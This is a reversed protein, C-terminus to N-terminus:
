RLQDVCTKVTKILAHTDDCVLRNDANNTSSIVLIGGALILTEVFDESFQEGKFIAGFM